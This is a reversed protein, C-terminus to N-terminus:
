ITLLIKNINKSTLNNRSRKNAQLSNIAILRGDTIWISKNAFDISESSIFYDWSDFRQTLQKYPKLLKNLSFAGVSIGLLNNNEWIPTCIYYFGGNENIDLAFDFSIIETLTYACRKFHKKFNNNDM